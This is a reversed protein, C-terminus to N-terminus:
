RLRDNLDLVQPVLHWADGYLLLLERVARLIALLRPLEKPSKLTAPLRSLWHRNPGVPESRRGALQRSTPRPKTEMVEIVHDLQARSSFRLDIGAVEVHLVAFGRRGVAVPAPPICDTASGAVPVHVWFSLPTRWHPELTFHYKPNM